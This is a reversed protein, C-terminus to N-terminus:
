KRGASRSVASSTRRVAPTQTSLNVRSGGGYSTGTRSGGGFRATSVQAGKVTGGASSRYVAKASAAKIQTKYTTSFHVVTVHTYTSRYSSPVYTNYYAPSSYYPYYEEAWYLPAAVPMSGDPCLGAAQLLAVQALGDTLDTGFYFCSRVNDVSQWYAAPTYTVDASDSSDDGLSGCASALAGFLVTALALAILRRLRNMPNM